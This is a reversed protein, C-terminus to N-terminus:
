TKLGAKAEALDAPEHQEAYQIVERAIGDGPDILLATLANRLSDIHEARYREAVAQSHRGRSGTDDSAAAQAAEAAARGIEGVKALVGGWGEYARKEAKRRLGALCQDVTAVGASERIRRLTQDDIPHGLYRFLANLESRWTAAEPDISRSAVADKMPAARTAMAGNLEKNAIALNESGFHVETRSRKKNALTPDLITVHLVGKHLMQAIQLDPRNADFRTRFAPVPLPFIKSPRGAALPVPAPTVAIKERWRDPLAEIDPKLEANDGEPEGEAADLADASGAPKKPAEYSEVAKWDRPLWYVYWGRLSLPPKADSDLFDARAAQRRFFAKRKCGEDLVSQVTRRHADNVLGRVAYFEAFHETHLPRTITPAPTNKPRRASLTCAFILKIARAQAHGSTVRMEERVFDETEAVFPPMAPKGSIQGSIIPPPASPARAALAASGGSTRQDASL